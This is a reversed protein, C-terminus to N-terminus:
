CSYDRLMEAVATAVSEENETVFSHGGAFYRVSFVGGTHERWAALGDRSTRPDDLGSYVSLPCAFPAAERYVYSEYAAFDARIVPLVLGMLEKHQLIAEPACGLQRLIAITEQEDMATLNESEDPIHPANHGSVVMHLPEKGEHDRFWRALEFALLAGLSHGFLAFPRDLEPTLAETLYAVMAAFDGLPPEGIRDGHGPLQIAGLEITEPVWKSWNRFSWANGGAHPFCFLRVLAAPRAPQYVICPDSHKQSKLM